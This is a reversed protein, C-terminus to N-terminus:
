KPYHVTVQNFPIEIGNEDFMEKTVQRIGREVKFANENNASAWVRITVSSDGLDQVGNIFPGDIMEPISARYRPTNDLILAMVKKIDEKYAIDIMCIAGRSDPGLITVNKLESNSIVKTYGSIEITTARIGIGTVQGRFDGVMIWDGINFLNEFVIFFGSLIDNVTQQACMSIMAGIIGAGALLATSDVGLYILILGFMTVLLGFRIISASMRGITIGRPGLNGTLLTVAFLLLRAAFYSGVVVFLIMTFSFLNLGKHWSQGTLYSLLSNKGCSSDLLLLLVLFILTIILMRGLIKRYSEDMMQENTSESLITSHKEEVIDHSERNKVSMSFFVFYLLAFTIVIEILTFYNIHGVLDSLAIASVLVTSDTIHTNVYMREGNLRCIGAYDNDFVSDPLTNSIYSVETDAPDAFCIENQNEFNIYGKSSTGFDARLISGEISTYNEFDILAEASHITVISGASDQRRSAIHTQAASDIYGVYSSGGKIVQWISNEADVDDVSITYGNKDDTDFQVTGTGDLVTISTTNPLFSNLETLTKDSLAEPYHMYYQAIADNVIEWSQYYDNFINEQNNSDAVVSESCARLNDAAEINQTCYNILTQVYIMSLAILLLAFFLLGSTHSLLDKNIVKKRGFQLYATNSDQTSLALFRRSYVYIIIVFIWVLSLPLFVSRIINQWSNSILKYSYFTFQDDMEKSYFIGYTDNKFKVFTCANANLSKLKNLESGDIYDSLNQGLLQSDSSRVITNTTNDVCFITKDQSKCYISQTDYLELVDYTEWRTVVYEGDTVKHSTLNYNNWVLQGETLLQYLESSNIQPVDEIGILRSDNYWFASASQSNDNLETKVYYIKFYNGLHTLAKELSQSTYGNQAFEFALFGTADAAIEDMNLNYIDIQNQENQYNLIAKDLGLELNFIYAMMYIFSSFSLLIASFIVTILIILALGKNQKVSIARKQM